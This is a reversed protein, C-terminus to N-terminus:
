NSKHQYLLGLNVFSKATQEKSGSATQNALGIVTNMLKYLSTMTCKDTIRRHPVECTDSLSLTQITATNAFGNDNTLINIHYVTPRKNGKHLTLLVGGSSTKSLSKSEGLISSLKESLLNFIAEQVSKPQSTYYFQIDSETCQISM